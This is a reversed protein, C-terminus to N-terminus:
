RGKSWWWVGTCEPLVIWRREVVQEALSAGFFFRTLEEAETLSTFRYDTRIWTSAFGQRELYAYYAALSEPRHPTEFGTGLTELLIITGGPRLVRKMEALVRDLQETWQEGGWTVIYGVSWGSLVVDAVRDSLPLARHDATAIGWNRGGRVRLKSVAVHLMHRSADFAYITRVLPALLCTLRGTGAGLEVVDLGALPRIERITRPVNGQDDERSVLLEYRDAHRNYIDRHDPKGAREQRDAMTM